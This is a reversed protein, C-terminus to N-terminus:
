MTGLSCTSMVAYLSCRASDEFLCTRRTTPDLFNCCSAQPVFLTTSHFIITPWWQSFLSLFSHIVNKYFCMDTMCWQIVIGIPVISLRCRCPQHIGACHGECDECYNSCTSFPMAASTLLSRRLGSLRSYFSSTLLSWEITIPVSSTSFPRNAMIGHWWCCRSVTKTTTQRWSSHAFACCVVRGVSRCHKHM